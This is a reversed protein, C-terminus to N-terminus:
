RITGRLGRRGDQRQQRKYLAEAIKDIDADERVIFTAGEMMGRNDYTVSSGEYSERSAQRASLGQADISAAAYSLQPNWSDDTLMSTDISDTMIGQIEGAM